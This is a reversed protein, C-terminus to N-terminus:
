KIPSFHNFYEHPWKKMKMTLETIYPTMSNFICHDSLHMRLAPLIVINTFTISRM